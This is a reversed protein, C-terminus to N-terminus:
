LVIDKPFFYWKLLLTFIKCKEGRETQEEHPMQRRNKMFFSYNLSVMINKVSLLIEFPQPLKEVLFRTWKNRLIDSIRPKLM